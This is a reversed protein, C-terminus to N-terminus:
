SEDTSSHTPGPAIRNRVFYAAPTQYRTNPADLAVVLPLSCRGFELGLHGIRTRRCDQTSVCRRESKPASAITRPRGTNHSRRSAKGMPTRAADLLQSRHDCQTQARRSLDSFLVKQQSM